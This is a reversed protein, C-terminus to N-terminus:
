NAQIALYSLRKDRAIAGAIARHWEPTPHPDNEFFRDSAGRLDLIEVGNAAVATIVPDPDPGSFAANFVLLIFPVSRRACAERMAMILAISIDVEKKELEPSDALLPLDKPDHSGHFRLEAGELEFYQTKIGSLGAHWTKRLYNRKAHIFSYGYFVIAPLRPGDLTERLVVLAQTTGWGAIGRNRISYDPWHHALIAPYTEHDEVGLGFTFSCGLFVIDRESNTASPTKRWGAEDFSYAVCYDPVKAHLAQTEPKCRWGFREDWYSRSDFFDGARPRLFLCSLLLLALAALSAVALVRVARGGWFPLAFGLCLSALAVLALADRPGPRVPLGVLFHQRQSVLLIVAAAAAIVLLALSVRAPKAREGSTETM